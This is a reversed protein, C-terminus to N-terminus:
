VFKRVTIKRTERRFIVSQGNTASVYKIRVTQRHWGPLCVRRALRFVRVRKGLLTVSATYGCCFSPYRQFCEEEDYGLCSFVDLQVPDENSADVVPELQNLPCNTRYDENMANNRINLFEADVGEDPLLHINGLSVPSEGCPGAHIYLYLECDFPVPRPLRTELGWDVPVCTFGIPLDSPVKACFVNTWADFLCQLRYETGDQGTLVAFEDSAYEESIPNELDFVTQYIPGTVLVNQCQLDTGDNTLAYDCYLPDHQDANIRNYSKIEERCTSIRYCFEFSQTTSPDGFLVLIVLCHRCFSFLCTQNILCCGSLM